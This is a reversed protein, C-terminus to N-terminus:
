ELSKHTIAASRQNIRLGISSKLGGSLASLVEGSLGDQVRRQLEIALETMAHVLGLNAEGLLERLRSLLRDSGVLQATIM